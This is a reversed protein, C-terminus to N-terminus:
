VKFYLSRPLVKEGTYYVQRPLRDAKTLSFVFVFCFRFDGCWGTEKFTEILSCSINIEHFSQTITLGKPPITHYSQECCWLSNPRSSIKTAMKHLGEMKLTLFSSNKKSSIWPSQARPPNTSSHVLESNGAGHSTKVHPWYIGM